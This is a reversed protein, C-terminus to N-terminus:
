LIMVPARCFHGELTGNDFAEMEAPPSTGSASAQVSIEASGTAPGLWDSSDSPASTTTMSSSGSTSSPIHPIKWLQPHWTMGRCRVGRRKVPDSLRIM